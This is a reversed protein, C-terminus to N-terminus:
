YKIIAKKNITSNFTEVKIIYTGESIDKVPIRIESTAQEFDNQEWSAVTQGILNILYVKDVDFINESKIFIEKSGILYAVDFGNTNEPDVVSLAGDSSFAIYFRNQYNGAELVM